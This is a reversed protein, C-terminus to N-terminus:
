YSLCVQTCQSENEVTRDMCSQKLDSSTFNDDCWSLVARLVQDCRTYCQARAPGNSTGGGWMDAPGTYSPGSSGGGSGYSDGEPAV